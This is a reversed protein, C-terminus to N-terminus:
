KKQTMRQLLLATIFTPPPQAYVPILSSNGCFCVTKETGVASSAIQNEPIVCLLFSFFVCLPSRRSGGDM